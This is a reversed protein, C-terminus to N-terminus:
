QQRSAKWIRRELKLYNGHIHEYRKVMEGFERRAAGCLKEKGLRKLKRIGLTDTDYRRKAKPSRYVLKRQKVYQHVSRELVDQEVACFVSVRYFVLPMREYFTTCWRNHNGNILRYLKQWPLAVVGLRHWQKSVTLMALATSAQAMAERNPYNDNMKVVARRCAQADVLEGMWQVVLEDPWHMSPRM